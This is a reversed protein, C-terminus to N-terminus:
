SNPYKRATHVINLVSVTDNDVHVVAIYPLRAIVYGWTEQIRGIRCREPLFKLTEIQEHIRSYVSEAVSLGAHELYYLLINELDQEAEKTWNIKFM